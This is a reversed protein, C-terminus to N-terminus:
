YKFLYYLRANENTVSGELFRKLMLSLTMSNTLEIVNGVGTVHHTWRETLVARQVFHHTRRYARVVQGGMKHALVTEAVEESTNTCSTLWTRLSPRFGHPSEIIGRREM